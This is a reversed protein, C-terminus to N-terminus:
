SRLISEILEPGTRRRPPRRRYPGSRRDRWSGRHQRPDTVLEEAGAEILIQQVDEHRGFKAAQLASGFHGGQANVDAGRDLLLQVIGKYGGISAAQLASGYVGGSANVDAGHDLLLYVALMHGERSAAQLANGFYGGEANVDAGAEILIRVVDDHGGRAAAQLANGYPGYQVNVDAGLEILSKVTLFHGERSAAQLATGFDGGRANIDAGHEILVMVTQFHGKCSAAQLPCGFYGERANVDAGTELLLRASETLGALSAVYLPSPDRIPDSSSQERQQPKQWPKDPNYLKIWNAYADTERRFLEMIQVGSMSSEAWRAHEMWYTAAYVALPFNEVSGPKLSDPRDFQLLYALCDEAIEANAQTREFFRDLPVRKISQSLLYEKVTLHVLQVLTVQEVPKGSDGSVGTTPVIEATTVLGSCITLIDRPEPLRKEPNVRPYGVFDVTIAESAEELRLPRACYILWRLVKLALANNEADMNDLIRAYTEDLTRPLSALTKRLIRLNLSGELSDVQYV